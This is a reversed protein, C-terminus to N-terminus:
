EGAAAPSRSLAHFGQEVRYDFRELAGAASSELYRAAILDRLKEPYKRHRVFHLQLAERTQEFRLDDVIARIRQSSADLSLQLRDANSVTFQIGLALLAALLLYTVGTVVRTLYGGREPPQEGLGEHSVVELVGAGLLEGLARYTEFMGLGSARALQSVTKHGNVHFFAVRAAASIEPLSDESGDPPEVYGLIEGMASNDRAYVCSAGGVNRRLEPWEESRQAAKKLLFKIPLPTVFQPNAPRDDRFHMGLDHKLFLPFVTEALQLDAFRKLVDEAVIERDILYEEITLAMASSKAKADILEELTITGSEVLFEGLPWADGAGAQEAKVVYGGRVHIRTVIPGSTVELVGTRSQEELMQLVTTLTWQQNPPQNATSM